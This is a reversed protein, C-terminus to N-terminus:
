YQGCPTSITTEKPIGDHVIFEHPYVIVKIDISLKEPEYCKKTTGYTKKEACLYNDYKYRYIRLSQSIDNHGSAIFLSDPTSLLNLSNINEKDYYHVNAPGDEDFSSEPIHYIYSGTAATNWSYTLVDTSNPLHIHVLDKIEFNTAGKFEASGYYNPGCFEHMLLRNSQLPNVTVFWGGGVDTLLMKGISLSDGFDRVDVNNLFVSGGPAVPRKFLWVRTKVNNILYKVSQSTFVVHSSTVVVDNFWWNFGSPDVIRCEWYDGGLHIIDAVTGSFIGYGATAVIRAKAGDKFVDMKRFYRVEPFTDYKVPVNPFGSIPYYGVVAHSTLATELKGCFFVTDSFVKFDLVEINNDDLSLYPLNTGTEPVLYFAKGKESSCYNLWKNKYVRRIISNDDPMPIEKTFNQAYAYNCVSSLLILLPYFAKKM